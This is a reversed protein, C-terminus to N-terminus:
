TICHINVQAALYKEEQKKAQQEAKAKQEATLYKEVKIKLPITSLYSTVYHVCSLKM